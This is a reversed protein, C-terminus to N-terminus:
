MRDSDAAQTHDIDAPPPKLTRHLARTLLAHSTLDRVPVDLFLVGHDGGQEQGCGRMGGRLSLSGAIEILVGGTAARCRDMVVLRMVHGDGGPPSLAAPFPPTAKQPPPQAPVQLSLSLGMRQVSPRSLGAM